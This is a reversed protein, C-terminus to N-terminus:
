FKQFQVFKGGFGTASCNGCRIKWILRQYLKVSSSMFGSQPPHNLNLPRPFKPRNSIIPNAVFFGELLSSSAVGVLQNIICNPISLTGNGSVSIIEWATAFIGLNLRFGSSHCVPIPSFAAIGVRMPSYWAVKFSKGINTKSARIRSQVITFLHLGVPYQNLTTNVM